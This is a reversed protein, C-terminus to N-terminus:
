KLFSGLTKNKYQEKVKKILSPSAFCKKCYNKIKKIM